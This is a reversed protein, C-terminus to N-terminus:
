NETQQNISCGTKEALEEVDMVGVQRTGDAFVWTPYAEIGADECEKTQGKGGPLSCEVYPLKSASKGFMRKQDQCHPCWYAGYFVAGKEELCKAFEDYKGQEEPGSNLFVAAVILVVAVGALIYLKRNQSM